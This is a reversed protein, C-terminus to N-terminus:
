RNDYASITSSTGPPRRRPSTTPSGATTRWTPTRPAWRPWSRGSSIRRRCITACMRGYSPWCRHSYAWVKSSCLGDHMTPPSSNWREAFHPNYALTRSVLRSALFAPRPSIAKFKLCYLEDQTIYFNLLFSFVYQVNASIQMDHMNYLHM